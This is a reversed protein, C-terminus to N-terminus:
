RTSPVSATEDGPELHSGTESALEHPSPSTTLPQDLDSRSDGEFITKRCEAIQTTQARDEAVQKKVLDLVEQTWQADTGHLLEITHTRLHEFRTQSGPQEMDDSVPLAIHDSTENSPATLNLLRAYQSQYSMESESLDSVVQEITRDGCMGRQRTGADMDALQVHLQGLTYQLETLLFQAETITGADM